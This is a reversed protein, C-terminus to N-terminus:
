RSGMITAIDFSNEISLQNEWYITQNKAKKTPSEYSMYEEDDEDALPSARKLTWCDEVEETDSSDRSEACYFTRERFVSVVQEEFSPTELRKDQNVSMEASSAVQLLPGAVFTLTSKPKTPKEQLSLASRRKRNHAASLPYRLTTSATM